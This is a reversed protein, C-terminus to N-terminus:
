NKNGKCRIKDVDRQERMLRDIFEFHLHSKARNKNLKEYEKPQKTKLISSIKEM